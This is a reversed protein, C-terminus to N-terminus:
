DIRQISKIFYEPRQKIERNINTLYISFIYLIFFLLSFMISVLVVLYEVDTNKQIQGFLDVGSLKILIADATVFCSFSLAIFFSLLLLRHLFNTFSLIAGIAQSVSPNPSQFLYADFKGQGKEEPIDAEIAATNFGVFSFVGKLYLYRERVKTISNLARRSIISCNHMNMHIDIESYKKMISYFAKFFILRHFPLKRQRYQLFVIDFNEQTKKYLDVFLDAKEYLNMDFIVTYDGNARDLGAIIANDKHTYKSLNLITIDKKIEEALHVTAKKVVGTDLGNNVLIIEYYKFNEKLVRHINLLYRSIYKEEPYVLAVVSIFANYM